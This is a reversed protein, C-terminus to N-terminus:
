LPSWVAAPATSIRKIIKIHKKMVHFNYIHNNVPAEIWMMLSTLWYGFLGMVELTFVSAFKSAHFIKLIAFAFV